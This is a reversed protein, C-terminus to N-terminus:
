ARRRSPRARHAVQPRGSLRRRGPRAPGLRGDDDIVSTSTASAPSASSAAAAYGGSARYAAYDIYGADPAHAHQKGAQSPRRCRRSADCQPSRTRASSPSRRRSAAASARRTCCACTAHRPHAPLAALLESRAPWSAPSALRLGAGHARAARTEGEKVVDFHHYFTAVEYVETM